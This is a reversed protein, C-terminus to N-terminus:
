SYWPKCHNSNVGCWKCFSRVKPVAWCRRMNYRYEREKVLVKTNVWTSFVTGSKESLIHCEAAAFFVWLVKGTWFLGASLLVKGAAPGRKNYNYSALTLLDFLREHKCSLAKSSPVRWVHPLLSKHLLDVSESHKCFQPLLKSRLLEFRFKENADTPPLLGKSGLM